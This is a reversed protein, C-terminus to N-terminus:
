STATLESELAYIADNACELSDMLQEWISDDIHSLEHGEEMWQQIARVATSFLKCQSSLSRFSLAAIKYKDALAKLGIALKGATVALGACTEVLALISLPEM